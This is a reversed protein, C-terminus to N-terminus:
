NMSLPARTLTIGKSLGASEFQTLVQYVTATGVDENADRLCQYIDEATM